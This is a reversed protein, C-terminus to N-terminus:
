SLNKWHDDNSQLKDIKKKRKNRDYANKMRSVLDDYLMKNKIEKVKKDDMDVDQKDARPNNYIYDRIQKYTKMKPFGFFINTSLRYFYLIPQTICFPYYFLM